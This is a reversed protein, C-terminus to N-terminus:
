ISRRRTTLGALVQDLRDRRGDPLTVALGGGPHRAVEALIAEAIEDAGCPEFPYRASIRSGEGQADLLDGAVQSRDVLSRISDVVPTTITM